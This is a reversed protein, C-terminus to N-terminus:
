CRSQCFWLPERLTSFRLSRSHTLPGSDEWWSTKCLTTCIPHQWTALPACSSTTTPADLASAPVPLRFASITELTPTLAQSHPLPLPNTHNSPIPKTSSYSRFTSSFSVMTYMATSNRVREAVDKRLSLLASMEASPSMDRFCQGILGQLHCTPPTRQVDVM